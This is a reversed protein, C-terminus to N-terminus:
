GLRASRPSGGVSGRGLRGGQTRGRQQRQVPGVHQNPTWRPKGYVDTSSTGIHVGVPIVTTLVGGDDPVGASDVEFDTVGAVDGPGTTGALTTDYANNGGVFTTITGPNAVLRQAYCGRITLLTVESEAKLFLLTGGPCGCSLLTTSPIVAGSYDFIMASSFSICAEAYMGSAHMSAGVICFFASQVTQTDGRIVMNEVSVTALGTAWSFVGASGSDVYIDTGRFSVSIAGNVYIARNAKAKITGGVMSFGDGLKMAYYATTDLGITFANGVDNTSDFTIGTLGSLDLVQAAFLQATAARFTDNNAAALLAAEYDIYPEPAAGIRLITM